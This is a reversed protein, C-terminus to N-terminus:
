ELYVKNRLVVFMCFFICTIVAFDWLVKVSSVGLNLFLLKGTALFKRSGKESLIMGLPLRIRIDLM